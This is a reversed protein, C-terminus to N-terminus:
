CSACDDAAACCCFCCVSAGDSGVCGGGDAVDEDDVSGMVMGLVVSQGCGGNRVLMTTTRSGDVTLAGM